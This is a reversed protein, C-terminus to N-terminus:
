DFVLPKVRDTFAREIFDERFIQADTELFECLYEQRFWREGLEAREEDLFRKSIRTCETAPACITVWRAVASKRNEIRSERNWTEWFFGRKGHPTSMLWMDGDAVATMPRVSKYLEDPVRAAEDVLMLSVKSFGRVTSEKGPIGVIRSGNAFLLSVANRGDGRTKEGLERAFETVKRLFEGSQRESPSVVLVMAKPTFLARHLAKIATVTSKGWQRSCNLLGRKATSRLVLAQKADAEFGLAERAFAVPDCTWVMGNKDM